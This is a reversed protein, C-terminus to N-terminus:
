LALEFTRCALEDTDIAAVIAAARNAAGVKGEEMAEFMKAQAKKEAAWKDLQDIADQDGEQQAIAVASSHAQKLDGVTAATMIDHKRAALWAEREPNHQVAKRAANGDDDLDTDGSIGALTSISYRRLYTTISGLQQLNTGESKVALEGFDFRHGTHHLVETKLAIRTETTYPTQLITLGYKLFVPKVEALLDSLGFYKSKFHPNFKEAAVNSCHNVALVLAENPSLQKAAESIGEFTPKTINHVTQKISDLLQQSAPTDETQDKNKKM